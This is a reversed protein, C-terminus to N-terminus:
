AQKTARRREEGEGDRRERRGAILEVGSMVKPMGAKRRGARRASVSALRAAWSPSQSKSTTTQSSPPRGSVRRATSFKEARGIEYWGLEGGSPATALQFRQRSNARPRQVM